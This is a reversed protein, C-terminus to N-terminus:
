RMNKGVTMQSAPLTTVSMMMVATKMVYRARKLRPVVLDLVPDKAFARMRSAKSVQAIGNNTVNNLATIRAMLVILGLRACTLGAKSLKRDASKKQNVQEQRDAELDCGSRYTLAISAAM